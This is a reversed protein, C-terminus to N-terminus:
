LFSVTGDQWRLMWGTATASVRVWQGKIRYTGCHMKPEKRDSCGVWRVGRFASSQLEPQFTFRTFRKGM